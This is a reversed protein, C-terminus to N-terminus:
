EVNQVDSTNVTSACEPEIGVVFSTAFRLRLCAGRCRHGRDRDHVFVREVGGLVGVPCPVSCVRGWVKQMWM